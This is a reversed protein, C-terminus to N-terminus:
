QPFVHATLAAVIIGSNDATATLENVVKGGVIMKVTITQGTVGGNGSASVSAGMSKPEATFEKTWPLSNVDENLANGGKEIYTASLSGTYNGTIEYKVDRSAGASNDDKDNDSSCSVATFALTLVIALTKLVSKM